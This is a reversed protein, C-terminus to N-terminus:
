ISYILGSKIDLYKISRDGFSMNLGSSITFSVDDSLKYSIGLSPYIGFENFYNIETDSTYKGIQKAKYEMFLGGIGVGVIINFKQEHFFTYNAKAFLPFNFSHVEYEYDFILTTDILADEVKKNARFGDLGFLVSASFGTEKFFYHIEGRGGWGNQFNNSFDTSIPINYNASIEMKYQANASFITTILFLFIFYFKYM